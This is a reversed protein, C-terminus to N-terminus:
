KPPQGPFEVRADHLRVPPAAAAVHPPTFHPATTDDAAHGRSLIRLALMCEFLTREYAYRLAARGRFPGGATFYAVVGAVLPMLGSRRVHDQWRAAGRNLRMEELRAYAIQSTMFRSIAKRDDHALRADFRYFPGAVSIEQSHGPQDVRVADRRFVILKAPYVSGLLSRGNVLYSFAAMGGAFAGPVFREALERVFDDPVLYDADLALIYPSRGVADFAFRWQAGHSDFPRVLWRVNPYKRAITETADTSGSDVIVVEEAWTLRDLARGINAAENFTLIVPTVAAGVPTGTEVGEDHNVSM